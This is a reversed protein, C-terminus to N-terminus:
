TGGDCCYGCGSDPWVDDTDIAALWTDDLEGTGELTGLVRALEEEM